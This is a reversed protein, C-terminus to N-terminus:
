FHAMPNYNHVVNNKNVEFQKVGFKANTLQNRRIWNRITLNVSNKKLIDKYNEMSELIEKIAKADFENNLKVCDEFTLQTKMKSVIPYNDCVYKQMPHIEKNKIEKSEKTTTIQNNNSQESKHQKLTSKTNVEQLEEWKILSIHIFKNTSQINIQKNIKLRKLITRIQQVSLGIDNSLNSYSTIISGAKVDIGKWRKDEYNVSVLLHILVRTTNHDKYWEWDLLSRHLKIWGSM